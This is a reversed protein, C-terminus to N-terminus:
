EDMKKEDEKRHRQREYNKHQQKQRKNAIRM